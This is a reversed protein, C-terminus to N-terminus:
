FKERFEPPLKLELYKRPSIVYHVGEEYEDKGCCLKFKLGSGCYCKDNRGLKQKPEKKFIRKHENVDFLLIPNAIHSVFYDLLKFKEVETRNDDQLGVVCRKDLPHEVLAVAKLEADEVQSYAMEGWYLNGPIHTCEIDLTNRKCISCTAKTIIMEISSFLSYPYLKELEKFHFDLKELFFLNRNGSWKSVCVLSDITDQLKDWSDKYRQEKLLVWYASYDKYLSFLACMIFSANALPENQSEIALTKLLNCKEIGINAVKATESLENKSLYKYIDDLLIFLDKCLDISTVNDIILSLM